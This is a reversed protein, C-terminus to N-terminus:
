NIPSPIGSLLLLLCLHPSPAVESPLQSLSAPFHVRESVRQPALFPGCDGDGRASHQGWPLGIDRVVPDPWRETRSKVTGAEQVEPVEGLELQNWAQRGAGGLGETVAGGM